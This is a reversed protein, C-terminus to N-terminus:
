PRFPHLSAKRANVRTIAEQIEFQIKNKTALNANEMLPLALKQKQLIRHQKSLYRRKAIQSREQKRSTRDPIPDEIMEICDMPCPAVCLECGICEDTFVTYLLKQAGIIADVPCAISCKGCGVCAEERVVAVKM